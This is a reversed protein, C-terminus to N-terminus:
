LYLSAGLDVRSRMRREAGPRKEAGGLPPRTSPESGGCVTPCLKTESDTATRTTSTLFQAFHFLLLLPPRIRKVFDLRPPLTIPLLVASETCGIIIDIRRFRLEVNEVHERVGPETHTHTYSITQQNLSTYM